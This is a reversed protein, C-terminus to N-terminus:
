RHLSLWKQNKDQQFTGSLWKCTRFVFIGTGTVSAEGYAVWFASNLSTNINQDWHVILFSCAKLAYRKTISDTMLCAKARFTTWIIVWPMANVQKVSNKSGPFFLSQITKLKWIFIYMYMRSWHIFYNDCTTLVHVRSKLFV